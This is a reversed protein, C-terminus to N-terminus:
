YGATEDLAQWEDQGSFDDVYITKGMQDVYALSDILDDKSLHSPFDNAQEILKRIWPARDYFDINEPSNLFIRGKQLRGEISWSIRDQKRANGHTLPEINFWSSLRTMEDHLYPMVAHMLSTKEIGIRAAGIDRAASIIFLATRRTDWQGHLIEKIWWGKKCIKAIVIATEDLRKKTKSGDANQFGALDVAVVWYGDAPEVDDFRWWEEKLLGGGRTIFSADLEQLALERSYRPNNYLSLVEKAPITPNDKSTFTFAEWEPDDKALALAFLEYFHNKGKPTGIFLADGEVDMMSPRIIEEWVNPKMDAYEDLVCYQLGVGRLSDPDDTGKISIKRGNILTVVGTNEHVKEIISDPYGYRGMLKLKPWMARKGQEFTPAVYYIDNGENLAHGKHETKLGAILLEAAALHTKGFRRGAAVVKFRAQSNHIVAQGNHLEINLSPL